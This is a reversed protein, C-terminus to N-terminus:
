SQRNAGYCDVIQGRGEAMKKAMTSWGYQGSRLAEWMRTAEPWPVLPHLPAISILVGDNPDPPLNALAIKDLTKGFATVEAALKEQREIERERSRRATGSLAELGARLDDLRGRELAIKGDAYDRGAIYLTMPTIRHYYLWIGYGRRESQLLWYIPAKRRSKSYRKIHYAFFRRGDRFYERLSKVGLIECAEDEIAEARKGWLLDLVERVRRVIDSPHTPDDVLIGDPPFATPLPCYATSGDRGAAKQESGDAPQGSGEVILAGPAYRPLPDFPGGLPPLLSPDLAKRVDWRGFAVGVYWMLLDQVRTIPDQPAAGEEDAEEEDEIGEEGTELQQSGSERRVLARDAESLGYLDFVIDDIQSQIAALRAQRAQEEADLAASAERLAAAERNTVLGPLCFAHTTEDARTRDRQLNHAERALAALTIRSAHDALHPIPTRQIIGVEYSRAAATAAGLQLKVLAEFPMSNTIALLALLTEAPDDPVFICPGKDAFICGGPLIRVSIGSTTRRPWTLGPRFYYNWNNIWRSWSATGFLEKTRKNAFAKLREGENEWELVLHVDCYYPSFAGGKVFPFWRQGLQAPGVEWTLRLFQADDKTSLGVCVRRGESQVAALSTFLRRISDGVWYAFPSGPIQAFAAPDLTYTEEAAGTANLAAIREALADGKAEIPIHLLRFFTTPTM